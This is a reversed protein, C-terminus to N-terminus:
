VECPRILLLSGEFVQKPKAAQAPAIDALLDPTLPTLPTHQHTDGGVGGHVPECFLQVISTDLHDSHAFVDGVLGQNQARCKSM